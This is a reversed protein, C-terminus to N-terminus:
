GRTSTCCPARASRGTRKTCPRATVNCAPPSACRSSWGDNSARRWRLFPNATESRIMQRRTELNHEAVYVLPPGFEGCLDALGTHREILSALVLRAGRIQEAFAAPSDERWRFAFPLDGADVAVQDLNSGEEMWRAACVVVPGPWLRAYAAAGDIFKRTLIIRGNSDQGVRLSPLVCLADVANMAQDARGPNTRFERHM